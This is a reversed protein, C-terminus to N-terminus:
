RQRPAPPSVHKDAPLVGHPTGDLLSIGGWVGSLKDRIAVALCQQRVPCTICIAKACGNADEGADFDWLPARGACAPGGDSGGPSQLGSGAPSPQVAPEPRKVPRVKIPRRELVLAAIPGFRETLLADAGARQERILTNIPGFREDLIASIRMGARRFTVVETVASETRKTM